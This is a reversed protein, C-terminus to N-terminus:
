PVLAPEREASASGNRTPADDETDGDDAGNVADETQQESLGLHAGMKNRYGVEYEDHPESGEPFPNNKVRGNGADDQGQAYAQEKLDGGLSDFMVLRLPSGALQLQMNLQQFYAMTAAPDNERKIAEAEKLSDVNIGASQAAKCANRYHGQATTVKEKWGLVQKRHYEADAPKPLPLETAKVPTRMETSAEKAGTTSEARSKKGGSGNKKGKAM